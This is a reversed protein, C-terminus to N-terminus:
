PRIIIPGDGGPGGGTNPATVTIVINGSVSQINFSTSTSVTTGGMTTTCTNGTGAFVVVNLIDGSNVELPFRSSSYTFDNIKVSPYLMDGDYLSITYKTSGGGIVLATKSSNYEINVSGGGGQISINGSGLLSENNITKLNTGSVLTAQKGSM